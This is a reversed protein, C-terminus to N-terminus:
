DAIPIETFYLNSFVQDPTRFSIDSSRRWEYWYSLQSTRILDACLGAFSFTKDADVGSSEASTTLRSFLYKSIFAAVLLKLERM